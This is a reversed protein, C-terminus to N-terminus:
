RWKSIISNYINVAQELKDLYCFENTQHAMEPQGPGLIVTPADNYLKQLVSGDTLYPLARPFGNRMREVKCVDYVIQVFPDNESTFVPKLDVLTEIVTEDGIERALKDLIKKHDVKTTSRIDITFEAHDPISNINMGGSITGVNLTPYGLLPDAETEFNFDMIKMISRVAEYIANVGLEPMSSHATKGTSVAKLYLAGKHGIVPLNATPEGVIIASAEGLGKKEKVLKSVGLCGLEEGASFILRIGGAPPTEIFAEISALIMAALGGKMDSSGLGWIKGDNVEGTFPDVRWSKEGLPVTDFHGSLVLPPKKSSLGKEAILHLRNDEFKPYEIKFGHGELM